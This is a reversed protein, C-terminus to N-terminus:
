HHEHHLLRLESPDTAGNTLLGNTHGNSMGLLFDTTGTSQESYTTAKTEKGVENIFTTTATQSSSTVPVSSGGNKTVLAVPQDFTEKRLRRRM